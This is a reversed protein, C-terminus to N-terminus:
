FHCRQRPTQQELVQIKNCQVKKEKKKKEKVLKIYHVHCPIERKNYHVKIDRMSGLGLLRRERERENIGHKWTAREQFRFEVHGVKIRHMIPM